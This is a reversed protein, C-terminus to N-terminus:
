ESDALQLESDLRSLQPWFSSITQPIGIPSIYNHYIETWISAKLPCLFLFHDTTEDTPVSSSCLPCSPSPHTDPIFRHLISKTPLKNHLTRYWITRAHLPIKLQWFSCWKISQFVLSPTTPAIIVKFYKISNIPLTSAVLGTRLSTSFPTLDLNPPNSLVPPINPSPICQAHFFPQLLIQRTKVLNIVFRSINRFRVIDTVPHRLRIIQLEHNFHFIDSALLKKAGPYDRLLQQPPIFTVFAPHSEPLFHAIIDALAHSAWPSSRCTSFILSFQYTPFQPSSYIWHFVYRLTSYSLFSTSSTPTILDSRLLPEVWRWQLAHQQVIPDLIGLGGKKRHLQITDFALRPFIRLNIFKSGIGRLTLLQAKTFVLLRM